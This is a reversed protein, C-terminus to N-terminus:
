FAPWGLVRRSNGGLIAEQLEQNLGAQELEKVYRDLALLPYDSGFLIKEVGMIRVAYQYIEPRYLFPSAATDFYTNRLVERVERKLLEYWWLGGGWHALIFVTKPFTKILEYLDWFPLRAKGPYLHGVPENTHLLLPVQWTEALEALPKLAELWAQSSSDLYLAIEGLGKMGAQLCRKGEQVAGPLEPNLCAFGLLRDPYQAMAELVTDNSRRILESQKWPFGFTVSAQIGCRDMANILGDATSLPSKKPDRYLLEFAPEGPFYRERDRCIEPPFIHTHIDIM